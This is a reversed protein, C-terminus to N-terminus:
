AEDYPMHFLCCTGCLTGCTAAVNGTLVNYSNATGGGFRIFAGSTTNYEVYGIAVQGDPCSPLRAATSSAGENGATITCATGGFKASVLYKVWTGSGQTGKPLNINAQSAATGMRGNILLVLRNTFDLGSTGGTSLWDSGVGATGGLTGGTGCLVRNCVSQIARRQADNWFAEYVKRSAQSVKASPDDFKKYAM